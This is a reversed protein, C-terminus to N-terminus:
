TEWLSKRLGHVRSFGFLYNASSPHTRAGGERGNGHFPPHTEDCSPKPNCCLPLFPNAWQTKHQQYLHSPPPVAFTHSIYWRCGKTGAERPLADQRRMSLHSPTPVAIPINLPFPWVPNWGLVGRHREMFEWCAELASLEHGGVLGLQSVNDGQWEWQSIPSPKWEDLTPHITGPPLLPISNALETSSSSM